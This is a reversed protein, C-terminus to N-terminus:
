IQNWVAADREYFCVKCNGAQPIGTIFAKGEADLTDTEVSGDPLKIRFPEDPVPNGDADILEIMLSHVEAIENKVSSAPAIAAIPPPIQGSVRHLTAEVRRVNVRGSVVLQALVRQLAEDGEPGRGEFGSVLGRLQHIMGRAHLRGVLRAGDRPRLQGEVADRSHGRDFCFVELGVRIRVSTFVHAIM